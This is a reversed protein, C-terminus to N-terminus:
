SGTAQSHNPGFSKPSSFFQVMPDTEYNELLDM